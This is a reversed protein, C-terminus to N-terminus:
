KLTMSKYGQYGIKEYEKEVSNILCIHPVCDIVHSSINYTRFVLVVKASAFNQNKVHSYKLEYDHFTKNM